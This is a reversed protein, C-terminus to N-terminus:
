DGSRNQESTQNEEPAQEKSPGTSTTVVKELLREFDVKTLPYEKPKPKKVM